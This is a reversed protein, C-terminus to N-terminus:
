ARARTGKKGKRKVPLLHSVSSIDESLSRNLHIYLRLWRTDINEFNIDSKMTQRRIARATNRATLSPFLSVVDSGIFTWHQRWDWNKGRKDREFKVRNNFIEIRSLMDESSIM